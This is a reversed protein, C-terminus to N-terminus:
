GIRKLLVCTEFHETQPFQDVIKLDIIKFKEQLNVLDICMSEPYCSIYIIYEAENKLISNVFSKLGSRAPNVFFLDCNGSYIQRHFDGTHINLLNSLNHNKANQALNFSNSENIELANVRHGAQLFSISFQGIGAGFEAIELLKNPYIMQLWSNVIQVLKFATNWSPQTFDAITCNLSLKNFDKDITQFWPELQPSILKLGQNTQSVRKHKQGVEVIFGAEILQKFYEQHDLLKKIDLNSLDLWCGKLGHPGVRLRISGKKVFDISNKIQYKKFDLFFQHLEISMQLCETVDLLNHQSDYFGFIQTQTKENFTFTFDTRNRLGFEGCSIIEVNQDITFNKNKLLNVLKNKKLQLQESYPITWLSCGNCSEFHKCQRPKAHTLM